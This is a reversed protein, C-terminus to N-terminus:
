LGDTNSSSLKGEHKKVVSASSGSQMDTDITGSPQSVTFKCDATRELLKTAARAAEARASKPDIMTGGARKMVDIIILDLAANKLEPPIKTDDADSQNRACNAVYGRVELVTNEIAPAVPDVQSRGLAAKRLGKLEPGSIVVLLDAETISIWSM